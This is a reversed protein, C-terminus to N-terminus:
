ISYNMNKIAESLHIKDGKSIRCLDSFTEEFVVLNNLSDVVNEELYPGASALDLSKRAEERIELQRRLEFPQKLCQNEITQRTHNFQLIAKEILNVEKIKEEADYELGKRHAAKESQYIDWYLTVIISAAAMSILCFSLYNPWKPQRFKASLDEFEQSNLVRKIEDWWKKSENKM